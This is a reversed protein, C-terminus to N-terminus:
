NPARRRALDYTLVNELAQDMQPLKIGASELVRNSEVNEFAQDAALYDLFLPLAALARRDRESVVMGVLSLAGRFLSSPLTRVQPVRIGASEFRARIRDRLTGIPLAAASGACLHLVRGALESRMSSWVISRAVYDVPVLDLKTHGLAPFLGYTRRGSLFEALHYFVQFHIVKGTQADGVVMSPRHVTAPLGSRIQAAIHEEAEAKAQEYTSHFIRPETIWREPLPGERRGGVGVTSVFEIKQLM